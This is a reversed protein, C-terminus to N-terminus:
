AHTKIWKKSFTLFQKTQERDEKNQYLSTVLFTDLNNFENHKVKSQLFEAWAKGSLHAVTERSYTKIAVLKLQTAIQQNVEISGDTTIKNLTKIADRKYKNEAYVIISKLIIATLLLVIVWFLIDWGITDFSFVVPDPEMLPKITNEETTNQSQFTGLIFLYNTM